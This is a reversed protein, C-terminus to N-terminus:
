GRNTHGPVIVTEALIILRKKVAKKGRRSLPRVFRIKGPFKKEEFGRSEIQIKTLFTNGSHFARRSVNPGGNIPVYVRAEESQGFALWSAARYVGGLHGVNPDAFSIAVDVDPELKKLWKVGASIVQTLLNPAHGDPAWLRSLEWLNGGDTGLVFTTLNKNAPISWVLIAGSDHLLYYSKGSPTSGTYHNQRIKIKAM